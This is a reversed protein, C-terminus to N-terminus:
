PAAPAPEALESLSPAARLAPSLTEWPALALGALAFVAITARASVAALLVGAILSGLPAIAVFDRNRRLPVAPM